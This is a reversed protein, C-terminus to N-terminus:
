GKTKSHWRLTTGQYLTVDGNTQMRLVMGKGGYRSTGTSWKARGFADYLVVNGDSQVRLSSGRGGAVTFVTKTGIVIRLSGDDLVVFRRHAATDRIEQGPVLSAGPLLRDRTAPAQQWLVTSGRVLQVVGLDTVQLRPASGTSAKGARWVTAGTTSRVALTGNTGVVLSAGKSAVNSSWVARGGGWEVLKGDAQLDLWWLGHPSRISTGSPVAVASGTIGTATAGAAAASGVVRGRTCGATPLLAGLVSWRPTGLGTARDHGKTAPYTGNTGGTVDRFATPHAYLTQHLDGVGSACGRASLAAALQGAVVPSALSTGGGLAFGRAAGLYIGPGTAPDAVSAIDPVLRKTGSVGVGSQWAPRAYAASTGGGSAGYSNGWATESTASSTTRLSTGGVAVVAPSSAPYTVSTVVTKPGTPCKAGDDGSAAFVTAGAAVIRAIANDFAARVGPSTLSECSGWSVSVAVIGARRVDDAIRSYSDYLGQFSNPAVYVRQRAGPATALLAEQDLAVESEGGSGDPAHVDAGDVSVQDLAPVERGVAKAYAVLDNRDWGSLQVTAVTTGAGANAASSSAYARALDAPAYGGPLAAHAAAPRADLGLVATVAGGFSSPLVPEASPHMGDGSGLLRIGFLAEARAATGTAELEWTDRDTVTFGAATLAARVTAGHPAEPAVAAVADARDAATDGTTTTPLARLATQDTPRLVITLDVTADGPTRGTSPDTPTPVSAPAAATPSPVAPAASAPAALGAALTVALATATVLALPRHLM